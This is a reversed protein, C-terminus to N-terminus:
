FGSVCGNCWAFFPLYVRFLKQSPRALVHPPSFNSDTEDEMRETVATTLLRRGLFFYSPTKEGM